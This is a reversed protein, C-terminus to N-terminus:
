RVGYYMSLVWEFVKSPLVNKLGAAIRQAVPGVTYRVRPSRKRLIREILRAIKEPTAGGREDKEVISLVHDQAARYPDGAESARVLRRSDTFGTSFDGPEILVARVGFPRVEMRLSETLGELAFKTASYFGQFPLGIRGGISSINVVLGKGQSRMVPLVAKSVRLIGLLNTEIIARAEEISTQEVAGGFGFGACNVVVDIRGHVELILAIASDVSREDDVDLTIVELQSTESSAQRLAQEIPASPQRTTGIVRYGASALHLACAKGIGSSAGTILVVRNRSSAM